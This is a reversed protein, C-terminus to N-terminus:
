GGAARRRFERARRSSTTLELFLLGRAITAYALVLGILTAKLLGFPDGPLRTVMGLLVLLLANPPFWEIWNEVIFRYSEALLEAGGRRGLYILEPVANFFTLIGLTILLSLLPSPSLAAAYRLLWLMFFFTLLDSFYTGFTAPLDSLRTRNWRIVQEALALWSSVCATSLLYALLGGVIGLPALLTGAVALGVAYAPAVFALPWNARTLAAAKAFIRGYLRVTDSLWATM